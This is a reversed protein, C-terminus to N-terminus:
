PEFSTSPKRRYVIADTSLAMLAMSVAQRLVGTAVPAPDVPGQDRASVVRGQWVDYTAEPGAARVQEALLGPTSVGANTLIHHFPLALGTRLIGVGPHRALDPPLEDLASAAHLYAAGGGAVVGGQQAASVVRLAREAKEALVDREAQTAAGIRLVAMGGTLGALRSVLHPRGPDDPALRALEGRLAQIRDRLEPIGRREGVVHLRDEAYVVRRAQGLHEPRAKAVSVTHLRGLVTAGTLLALDDLIADALPGAATLRVALVKVKGEPAQHNRVLTALGDGRISRAVVLIAPSAHRVALELLHVAEEAKTLHGDVLAVAMKGYAARKRPPETYFAASAIAAQYGAGPFYERALYPAVYREVTVQADPGLIAGIEGVLAALERHRIATFAVASLEDETAVPWSQAELRAVVAQAGRRLVDELERFNFGAERLRLGERFLHRALVAATAGGDGLRRTLHWVLHRLLMLGVDTHPDALGLIRRAADASHDLLEPRGGDRANVVHGALPGLTAALLDALADM